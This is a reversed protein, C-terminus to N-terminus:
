QGTHGFGGGRNGGIEKVDEVQYFSASTVESLVLQAFRQGKEIVYSKGTEFSKVIYYSPIQNGEEYVAEFEIDTIKPEINEIIVGIEDRYNADITGPSNAVRLKTKVSQGSRPRVQLEYGLPLATKIGLKVIVTEGPKIEYDEPAYVDLGADGLNSYTPIKAGERCLEIPVQMIRKAIGETSSAANVLAGIIRKLFDRKKASMQGALQNDIEVVLKDYVDSLDEAKMGAANLSAVLAMKDDANNLSKELESLILESMMNFEKEPLALTAAIGEMGGFDPSISDISNLIDELPNTTKVESM